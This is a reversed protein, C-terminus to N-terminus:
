HKAARFIYVAVERPRHNPSTGNLKLIYTAPPLLNAPLDLAILHKGDATTQTKLEKQEWLRNGEATELAADYTPFNDKDLVLQMPVSSVGSPIVLPKQHTTDRVLHTTLVFPMMSLPPNAALAALQQQLEATRRRLELNQSEAQALAQRLRVNNTILWAGGVVVIFLWIAVAAIRLTPMFAGMPRYVRNGAVSPPAVDSVVPVPMSSVHNMLSREFEVKEHWDPSAAIRKELAASEGASCEGRLYSRIMEDEAASLQEFLDPDALYRDEFQTREDPSLEGLLYRTMLRKQESEGTM